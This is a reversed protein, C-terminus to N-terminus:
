FLAQLPIRIKCNVVSLSIWFVIHQVCVCKISFLYSLITDLVQEKVAVTLLIHVSWLPVAHEVLNVGLREEQRGDGGTELMFRAGEGEEM